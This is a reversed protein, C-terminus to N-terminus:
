RRGGGTDAADGDVHFEFEFDGVRVVDGSEAGARILAREVGLSELRDQVHALAGPATLDNVAVARAAARGRVRWSGDDTRSVAVGTMLPSHIVVRRTETPEALRAEHVIRELAGMVTSVGEGTFSSVRVIESEEGDIEDIGSRSDPDMDARSGAVVRPRQLLEPRYLGLERRLVALQEAASVPSWPSLDLLILLVRAREVHRLFRRGLGKGENSGSILGPIDALVLETFDDVRVVGLNPELTTFPYDAIKPKAASVRSIFTSKGVNPFGIIAVDALLKLELRLWRREGPEGQEAFAPARCRRSAFRANGRGGVGAGAARWRDGHAALDVLPEGSGHDLVVTGVPVAVELDDGRAGHRHAGSGHSGDVARRHPHDRFALLSATNRDAVLWVDGGRGGDGGSPGGLAVHAERRFAVCGAGGDGATVHLNCEDM